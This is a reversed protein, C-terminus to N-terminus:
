RQGHRRDKAGNNEDDKNEKTKKKMEIIDVAFSKFDVSKVREDNYRMSGKRIEMEASLDNKERVRIMEVASTTQYVLQISRQALSSINENSSRNLFVSHEFNAVKLLLLYIALFNM